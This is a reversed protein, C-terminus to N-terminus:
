GPPIQGKTDVPEFIDPVPEQTQPTQGTEPPGAQGSDPIGTQEAPLDSVPTGGSTPTVGESSSSFPQVAQGPQGSVPSVGALPQNPKNPLNDSDSTSQPYSTPM